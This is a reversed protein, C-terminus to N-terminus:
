IKSGGFSFEPSSNGSSWLVKVMCVEGGPGGQGGLGRPLVTAEWIGKDQGIKKV